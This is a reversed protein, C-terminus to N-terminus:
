LENSKSESIIQKYASILREYNSKLSYEKLGYYYAKEALAVRQEENNLLWLAKEALSKYDGTPVLLINKDFENIYPIGGTAYAVIPIKLFMAERITSSLREKHPLVLFVKSAKIYEFLEKQTKVFGTFTVNDDLNLKHALAKFEPLNGSGVMCVKINEKTKKIEAIAYLFDEAGKIKTLRGFYICDYKYEDLSTILAYQENVPFYFRFFVHYPNYQSIYISSDQEGCFYKFRKLIMEEIEITKRLPTPKSEIDKYQSIFGQITIWYLPVIILM